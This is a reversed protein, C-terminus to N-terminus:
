MIDCSLPAVVFANGMESTSDIHRCTEFTQCTSVPVLLVFARKSESDIMGYGSGLARIGLIPRECPPPGAFSEKSVIGSLAM